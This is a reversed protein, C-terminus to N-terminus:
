KNTILKSKLIIQKNHFKDETKMYDITHYKIKFGSFVSSSKKVSLVIKNEYCHIEIQIM